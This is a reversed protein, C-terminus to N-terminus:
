VVRIGDKWVQDIRTEYAEFDYANGRLVVVDGRKGPEISGLEDGLRLLRAASLTAAHLSQAPSLGCDRMLALEGLNTGHPSVPCDTGLALPVGAEIALRTATRASDRAETAKEM